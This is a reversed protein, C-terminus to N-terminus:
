DDSYGPPHQFNGVVQNIEQAIALLEMERWRKGVIQMGIPLGDPTYGVPIVVVPHGTFAFPITYAGSAMLYPVKRGDIEIATGTPCHQFASTMAVPCLWADWAELEADMQAIFRDRQTLAAFYGKMNPNLATSFGIKPVNSIKRLGRDGQTAEGLMLTLSDRVYDFDFPQSIPSTYASITLYVQWASIFDFKPIWQDIQTGANSLKHAVAQMASKISQAVPYPNVEDTWAIKVHQLSKCSPSDLPVPPVEPQRPDAGAILSFCLQLDEISRAIPGAVLMQRICRSMGPVEPIHGATSVRRDTPKLGYVGCFHSPQRISGGIDSSIDLPSLGAAIAAASGGSSGGPTYNLNWPNNVRAFLDNTSQFNGALKAPNTKGMIVAGVGRLQAVVTADTAPIYDKLPKYGATTLLGATEFADKITIPVGHLVGWNEGRALAEDAEEAREHAREADLTCIANLQSNYKVIRDLYSDLVEAASVTRDRIMQALQHAPTFVFDNMHKHSISNKTVHMANPPACLQAGRCDAYEM